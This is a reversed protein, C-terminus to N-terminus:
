WSTVLQIQFAVVPGPDPNFSPNWVLQCDPELKTTPTLQMVYNLEAVYENEHFVTRTTASPQSWVFGLGLRDNSTRDLLVHKFPGQIALGTSAQADADGSV